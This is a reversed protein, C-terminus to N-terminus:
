DDFWHKNSTPLKANLPDRAKAHAALATQGHIAQKQRKVGMAVSQPAGTTIGGKRQGVVRGVGKIAGMGPKIAKFFGKAVEEGHDIGWASTSM